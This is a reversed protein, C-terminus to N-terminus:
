FAGQLGKARQIENLKDAIQQAVRRQEAPSTAFTGQINITIGQTNESPSRNRERELIKDLKSLPIVAEAEGGEGVMALTPSTIIGGDALKPINIEGIRSIDVGPIKNIAGIAGNIARIFNNITNQAFGIIANVPAKIITAAVEGITGFVGKIWDWVNGVTSKIKSFSRIIGIVAISIGGTLVALVIEWNNRIWDWFSSLWVKVTDWNKIILYAAAAVTAVVLGIPGLAMLWGAAIRAGAVLAQIGALTQVAIYRVVAPILLIGIVSSVQELVGKYQRFIDYASKVGNVISEFFGKIQDKHVTLWETLSTLLDSLRAFPGSPDIQGTVADIGLLSLGVNTIAEKLNSMRGSFTQSQKIAGQFAFGGQKTADALAATLVETTVTGESLADQLNGLGRKIVQEELNKRFAGAGSNLIQYFDQTQLKGRAIAQTLPLVFQGLDAGTAGAIDGAQQMYKGLDSTAVGVALFSRAATQIEENTFATVKGFEYMQRMVESAADASGTLSEFSARLSQIESASTIFDKTMVVSAASVIAATAAFAKMGVGAVTRFGKDIAKQGGEVDAISRKVKKNAKDIEDVGKKYRSTDITAILQITGITTAM